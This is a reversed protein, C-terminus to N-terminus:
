FSEPLVGLQPVWLSSDLGQPSNLWLGSLLFPCLLVRDWVGIAKWTRPSKQTTEQKRSIRSKRRASTSLLGQGVSCPLFGAPQAAELLEQGVHQQRHGAKEVRDQDPMHGDWTPAGPTLPPLSGGGCTPESCSPSFGGRAPRPSVPELAGVPGM